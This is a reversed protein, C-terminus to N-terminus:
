KDDEEDIPECHEGCDSCIDTWKVMAGCCNSRVGYEREMTEKNLNKNMVLLCNM